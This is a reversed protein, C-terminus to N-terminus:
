ANEGPENRTEASLVSSLCEQMIESVSHGIKVRSQVIEKAVFMLLIVGDLPDLAGSQCVQRTVEEIIMIRGNPDACADQEFQFRIPQSTPRRPGKVM